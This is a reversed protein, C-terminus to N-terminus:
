NYKVTVVGEIMLRWSVCSYIRNKFEFTAVYDIVHPEKKFSKLVVEEAQLSFNGWENKVRFKFIFKDNVNPTLQYGSDILETLNVIRKM